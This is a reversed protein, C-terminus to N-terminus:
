YLCDDYSTSVWDVMLLRTEQLWKCGVTLMEEPMKELYKSMGHKDNKKLFFLYEKIYQKAVNGDNEFYVQGEKWVNEIEKDIEQIRKVCDKTNM